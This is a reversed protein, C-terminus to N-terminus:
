FREKEPTELPSWGPHETSPPKTLVLALIPSQPFAIELCSRSGFELFGFLTASSSGSLTRALPFGCYKGEMNLSYLFYPLFFDPINKLKIDWKKASALPIQSPPLYFEVPKSKTERSWPVGCACSPALIFFLFRWCHVCNQTDRFGFVSTLHTYTFRWLVEYLTAYKTWCDWLSCFCFWVNSIELIMKETLRLYALAVECLVVRRERNM